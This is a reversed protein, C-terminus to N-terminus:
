FAAGIMGMAQARKSEETTDAIYAQATSITAACAGHAARSILLGAFSDGLGCWLYSLSSGFV